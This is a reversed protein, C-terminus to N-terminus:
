GYFLVKMLIPGNFKSENAYIIDEVNKAFFTEYFFKIEVDAGFSFSDNSIKIYM